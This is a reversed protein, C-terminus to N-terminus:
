KGERHRGGERKRDTERGREKGRERERERETYVIIEKYFASELWVRKTEQLKKEM